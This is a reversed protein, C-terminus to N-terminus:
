PQLGLRVHPPMADWVFSGGAGDGVMYYGLVNIRAYIEPKPLRKLDAITNVTIEGPAWIKKVPMLVEAGIYAPAVGAALIGSLGKLFERRNM